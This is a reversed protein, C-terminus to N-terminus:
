KAPFPNTKSLVVCRQHAIYGKMYGDNILNALICELEDVDMDVKCVRLGTQLDKLQLQHPKPNGAEACLKHVQRFLNRFVVTKLKELLLFTGYKIFREEHRELTANFEHLAGKGISRALGEFHSLGYKRLCHATPPKGLYLKVPILFELVRRKNAIHDRHCHDLAYQLSTEAMKYREEFLYIRGEYYKYTVSHSKPFAHFINSLNPSNVASLLNSCLRLNNIAFYVKIMNNMVALCGMKKSQQQNAGRVVIMSRMYKTMTDVALKQYKDKDDAHTEHQDARGAVYRMRDLVAHIPALWWNGSQKSKSEQEMHSYFAEAAKQEALFSKVWPGDQKNKGGTGQGSAAKHELGLSWLHEIVISTFPESLKSACVGHLRGRNSQCQKALQTKAQPSLTKFRLLDALDGGNEYSIAMGCRTVFGDMESM